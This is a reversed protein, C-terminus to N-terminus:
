LNPSDTYSETFRSAFVWTQTVTRNWPVWHLVNDKPSRRGWKYACTWCCFRWSCHLIILTSGIAVLNVADPKLSISKAVTKVLSNDSTVFSSHHIRSCRTILSQFTWISSVSIIQQVRLSIYSSKFARKVQKKKGGGEYYSYRRFDKQM